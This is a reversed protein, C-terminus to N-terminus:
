ADNENKKKKKKKKKQLGLRTKNCVRKKKWECHTSIAFTTLCFSLDLLRKMFFIMTVLPTVPFNKQPPLTMKGSKKGPTFHRKGTPFKWKPLGLVFKLLKSFHLAFFFFLLYIFLYFFFFFLFSFFTREENQLNKVEM